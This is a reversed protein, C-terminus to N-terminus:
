EERRGRAAALSGRLMAASAKPWPLNEHSLARADREAATLLDESSTTRSSAAAIACRCRQEVAAVRVAQVRMLLSRRLAPWAAVIRGHAAAGDGRYLDLMCQGMLAFYHQILFTGRALRQAADENAQQLRQPDDAALYLLAMPGTEINVLSYH